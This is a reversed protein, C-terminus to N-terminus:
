RFTELPHGPPAALHSAYPALTVDGSQAAIGRTNFRNTVTAAGPATVEQVVVGTAAHDALYPFRCALQPQRLLAAFLAAREPSLEDLKDSTMLVGGALGAFLALSRVQDDTLDHFRDRLLICDPDAQWLVGAAHNRTVQDRLLSEASHVGM